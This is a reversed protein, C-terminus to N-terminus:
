STTCTHECMAWCFEVHGISWANDVISILLHSSRAATGVTAGETLIIPRLQLFAEKVQMKDVLLNAHTSNQRAGEDLNNIVQHSHVDLFCSM